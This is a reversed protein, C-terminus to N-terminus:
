EDDPVDGVVINGEDDYSFLSMQDRDTGGLLENWEDRVRRSFAIEPIERNLIALVDANDRHEYAFRELEEAERLYSWGNYSPREYRMRGRIAQAQRVPSKTAGKRRLTIGIDGGRGYSYGHERYLHVGRIIDEEAYDPAVDESVYEWERLDCVETFLEANRENLRVCANYYCIGKYCWIAHSSVFDREAVMRILADNRTEGERVHLGPIDFHYTDIMWSQGALNGDDDEPVTLMVFQGYNQEYSNLDNINRAWPSLARPSAKYLVGHRLGFTTESSNTTMHGEKFAM